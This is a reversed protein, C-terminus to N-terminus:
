LSAPFISLSCNSFLEPHVFYVPTPTKHARKKLGRPSATTEQRDEASSMSEVTSSATAGDAILKRTKTKESGAATWEGSEQTLAAVTDKGSKQKRCRPGATATAGPTSHSSISSGTQLSEQMELIDNQRETLRTCVFTTDDAKGAELVWCTENGLCKLHDLECMVM